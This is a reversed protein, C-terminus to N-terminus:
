LERMRLDHGGVGGTFVNRKKGVCYNAHQLALKCLGLFNHSNETLPPFKAM